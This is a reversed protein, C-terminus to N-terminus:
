DEKLKESIVKLCIYQIFGYYGIRWDANLDIIENLNEITNNALTEFNTKPIDKFILYQSRLDDNYDWIFFNSNLVRTIEEININANITIKLGIDIKSDKIGPTFSNIPFFNVVLDAFNKQPLIYKKADKIRDKLQQIIKKKEYGRELTDRLIKWHERLTEDTDLYIKFDIIKRLKPLYFPHLGAISIFEKPKILKPKSFKGINHDYDSRIINKNKKLELLADAQNHMNNAKPDLHTFKNWNVNDREWKHEADGEITLLKKGFINKLISQLSSKGSGSDGGIGILLNTKKKLISNSKTGYIYYAYIILIQSVNLITFSLDRLIENRIKFDLIQGLFIIDKYESIYFFIFFIIYCSSFITHIIISNKQNDNKIFFFCIYPTMWIYWAPAPYIFIIISIFLIGFYFFVIDNNLKKQNLLHLYILMIAAIPLFFKLSGVNYFTDFLLSQKPNSLVMNFFGDSFIFPLDFFLFITISALFYKFVEIKPFNIYLYYAIIPLALIVHIKTAAALAFFISSLSLKQFTLLYTSIFLLATPIIDLQSHIYTGYIIIPNLFYYFFIKNENNPILKLLVVLISIDALLLPIKIFFGSQGILDGLLSFPALLILMFGHYPFADIRGNLYSSEWPNWNELSISNLFPIFLESSYYSSFLISLIIKIIITYIFIPKTFILKM